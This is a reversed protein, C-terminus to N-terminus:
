IYSFIEKNPFNLSQIQIFHNERLTYILDVLADLTIGIVSGGSEDSQAGIPSVSLPLKALRLDKSSDYEVIFTKM